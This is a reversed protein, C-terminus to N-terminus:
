ENQEEKIDEMVLRTIKAGLSRLKEDFGCYGRDIHYINSIETVGQAKLAATVLAAGARLDTAKVNAGTLNKVGEVFATRSEIKIDAGMRLLEPVHMFRNEFVTETIVASGQCGTLMAMFQAQMDTPFGPYPMTKIDIGKIPRTPDAIIRIGNQMETIEIAAEKLKAIMPKLHEALINELEIDGGCAAVCTMFTGAEIRDPIVTYETSKLKDVGTIKVTDTGAGRIQAGLNNLFNSLDVIEPETAANEIVTQGEALVAAMMINETAGVSPFDLYIKNGKLGKSKATVMGHAIEIEAGLASFGKLHLDVPRAGILCGGPLPVKAEGWRALMPGMILFSARIKSVLEYSAEKKAISQAQIHVSGEKENWIVVAGLDTLIDKMTYVDKLPPVDKITCGGETLLSAAMIPLVANKSGGIKVRGKLPPSQEVIFKELIGCGCLLIISLSNSFSILM